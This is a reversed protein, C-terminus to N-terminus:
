AFAKKCFVLLQDVENIASEQLNFGASTLADIRFDLDASIEHAGPAVRRLEPRFGLVAECRAQIVCAQDWITQSRGGGVNLLSAGLGDRSSRLVHSIARCVEALSLFDRRQLGTSVLVLQGTTVAQRCLDNVLLMWCDVQPDVPVGFANSLRLVIGHLQGRESVATLMEEGARHTTAYPHRSEPCTAETITGTLPSRYVHATSLYVFRAVRQRVAAEVLRGTVVGNFALAGVPDGACAYANMGAAHVVVDVGECARDLEAASKWDVTVVRAEPLWALPTAPRRSGILVQYGESALMQAVRGGVFGRGGTVLARM